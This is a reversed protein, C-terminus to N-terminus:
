GIAECTQEARAPYTIDPICNAMVGIVAILITLDTM